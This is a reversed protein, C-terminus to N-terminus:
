RWTRHKEAVHEQGDYDVIYWKVNAPVEVVRLDASRGSYLKSDEEVMAVLASDTRFSDDGMDYMSFETENFGRGTRRQYEAEGIDSVGFGGFRTNIVIKVTQAYCHKCEPKGCGDMDHRCGCEACFIKGDLMWDPRAM